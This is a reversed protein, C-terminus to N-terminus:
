ENFDRGTAQKIESITANTFDIGPYKESRCTDILTKIKVLEDTLLVYDQENVIKTFVAKDIMSFSGGLVLVGANVYDPINSSDTGGTPVISIMTHIAPDISNIYAPGGIIKAPFLKCFNAGKSFQSVIENVTGCGPIMPIVGGYERYSEDSFNAASVLYDAGADVVQDVWPLPDQPTNLKHRALMLPYDVLSAAGVAFDPLENKLRAIKELPQQIRCTVEMNNIGAKILAEATKVVDLKDQTFVLIFGDRLLTEICATFDM